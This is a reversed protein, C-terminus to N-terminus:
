LETAVANIGLLSVSDMREIAIHSPLYLSVVVRNSLESSYSLYSISMVAIRSVQNFAGRVINEAAANADSSPDATGAKAAGWEKSVNRPGAYMVPLKPEICVVV